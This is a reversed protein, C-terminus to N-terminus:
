DSAEGGSLLEEWREYDKYCYVKEAKGLALLINREGLFFNLYQQMKM